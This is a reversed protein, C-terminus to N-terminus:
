CREKRSGNEEKDRNGNLLSFFFFFMYLKASFLHCLNLAFYIGLQAQKKGVVLYYQVYVM